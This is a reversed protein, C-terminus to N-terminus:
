FIEWATGENYKYIRKLTLLLPPSLQYVPSGFLHHRASYGDNTIAMLIYQSYNTPRYPICHPTKLKTLRVLKKLQHAYVYRKYKHIYVRYYSYPGKSYEDQQVQINPNLPIDKYIPGDKEIEKIYQILHNPIM